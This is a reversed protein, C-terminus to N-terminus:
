KSDGLEGALNTDPGMALRTLRFPDAVPVLNPGGGYLYAARYGAQRLVQAMRAPDSGADGYPFAFLDVSRLLGKELVVKSRVLEERWEREGLDSFGRHGVGHSQVAVGCRELERLDDWDCIPEVPESEDFRNRGGIFATPVFMVGPYGFKKLLPVAVTLNSRYGDDFTLLASRPPLIGPDALGALFRQRDLPQWGAEALYALHGAFTAQPVYFWTEWGGPPPPGVKHYGLVAVRPGTERQEIGM